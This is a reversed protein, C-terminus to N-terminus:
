ISLGARGARSNRGGGGGSAFKGERCTGTEFRKRQGPDGVEWAMAAMFSGKKMGGIDARLSHTRGYASLYWMATSGCCMWSTM